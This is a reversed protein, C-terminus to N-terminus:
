SNVQGKILNIVSTAAYNKPMAQPATVSLQFAGEIAAIVIASLHIVDEDRKTKAEWVDILLAAFMDLQTQILGQYIERVEPQRISEAAIVVWASVIEPMQAEGTALRANIFAELKEWPTQKVEQFKALRKEASTVIWNVASLLIEQKTKFHYHILGPTLGAERAIAQISAKEYGLDAMVRLLATVIEQKRKQTNSPRGM